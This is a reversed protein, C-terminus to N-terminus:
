ATLQCPDPQRWSQWWVVADATQELARTLAAVLSRATAFEDRIM